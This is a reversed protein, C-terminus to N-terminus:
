RIDGPGIGDGAKIPKMCTNGDVANIMWPIFAHEEPKLSRYIGFNHGEKLTEGVAIDRTAILRRKHTTVFSEEQKTPSGWVPYHGRVLRVMDAFEEGDLSHPADAGTSKVFNVHKEIVTANQWRAMYATLYVEKSHDSLGVEFGPFEEQMEHIAAPNTRNSPYSGSCYMLTTECPALTEIARWIDEKHQAATSLLVPKNCERAAELIRVHCMESSAIKHRKVFPDVAKLYEPSFASCMFEIGVSDCKEKIKPLWDVNLQGISPRAVVALGPGFLVDADYLQFKVADAGCKEAQSVSTLCDDLSSWNSGIEAIVFM